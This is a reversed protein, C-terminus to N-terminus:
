RRAASGDIPVPEDVLRFKALATRALPPALPRGFSREFALCASPGPWSGLPPYTNFLRIAELRFGAAAWARAPRLGLLPLAVEGRRWAALWQRGRRLLLPVHYLSLHRFDVLAMGNPRLVRALEDQVGPYSGVSAYGLSVVMGLDLIRLPRAPCGDAHALELALEVSRRHTTESDVPGGEWFAEWKAQRRRAGTQEGASRPGMMGPCGSAPCWIHGVGERGAPRAPGHIRAHLNPRAEGPLRGVLMVTIGIERLLPEGWRLAPHDRAAVFASDVIDFGARELMFAGARPTFAYLHESARYGNHGIALRILRDLLPLPPITPVHVFVLGDPRLVRHLRLLFLHPAVLHDLLNAAFVADFPREFEPLGDEVNALVAEFGLARVFEM